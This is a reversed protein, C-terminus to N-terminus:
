RVWEKLRRALPQLTASSQAYFALRGPSKWRRADQQSLVQLDAPIASSNLCGVGWGARLATVVAQSGSCALRVAHDIGRKQLSALAIDRVPCADALLVLPLPQHAPVHFGPAAVWALPERHLLLADPPPEHATVVALDLRGAAWQRQLDASRAWSVELQAGQSTEQLLALLAKLRAPVFYESFGVRWLVPEAAPQLAHLAEHQLELLRRAYPLFREGEPTLQLRRTTRQVLRAALTTELQRLQVSLASPTRNVQQAARALAGREAIAVFSQLWAPDLRSMASM